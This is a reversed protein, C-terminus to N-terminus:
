AVSGRLSNSSRACVALGQGYTAQSVRGSGLKLIIIIILDIDIM